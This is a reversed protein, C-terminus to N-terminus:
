AAVLTLSHQQNAISPLDHIDQVLLICIISGQFKNM